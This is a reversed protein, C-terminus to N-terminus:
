ETYLHKNKPTEHSMKINGSSLKGALAYEGKAVASRNQKTKNKEYQLATSGTISMELTAYAKDIHRKSKCSSERKMREASPQFIGGLKRYENQM